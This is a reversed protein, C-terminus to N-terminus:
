KASRESAMSWGILREGLSEVPHLTVAGDTIQLSVRARGDKDPDTILLDAGTIARSICGFLEDRKRALEGVRAEIGATSEGEGFVEPHDRATAVAAAAFLELTNSGIAALEGITKGEKDLLHNLRRFERPPSPWNPSRIAMAMRRFAGRSNDLSPNPSALEELLKEARQPTSGAAKLAERQFAEASLKRGALTDLRKWEAEISKAEELLALIPHSPPAGRGNTRKKILPM